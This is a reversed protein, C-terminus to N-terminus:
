FWTHGSGVHSDRIKWPSTRHDFLERLTRKQGKASMAGANCFTGEDGLAISGENEDGDLLQCSPEQRGHLLIWGAL